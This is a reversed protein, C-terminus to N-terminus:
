YVFNVVAPPGAAWTEREYRPHVIPVTVFDFGAM